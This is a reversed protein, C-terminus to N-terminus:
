EETLYWPESEFSRRLLDRACWATEWKRKRDFNVNLVRQEKHIVNFMDWRGTVLTSGLKQNRQLEIPVNHSKRDL